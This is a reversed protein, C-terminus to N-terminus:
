IKTTTTDPSQPKWHNFTYFLSMFHFPYAMNDSNSHLEEGWRKLM